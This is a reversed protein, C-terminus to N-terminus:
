RQAFVEIEWKVQGSAGKRKIERLMVNNFTSPIIKNSRMGIITSGEYISGTVRATSSRKEKQDWEAIAGLEHNLDEIEKQKSKIDGELTDAQETIMDQEEFLKSIAEESSRLKESLGKLHSEARDLGQEVGNNKLKVLKEELTRHEVTVKDQIQAIRGIEKHTTNIDEELAERKAEVAAIIKQKRSIDEDIHELKNQILQDHGLMLKTPNSMESGVDMVEVGKRVSIVSSLIKGQEIRCQGSSRIDSDIIEQKAIVDGFTEITSSKIYKARVKGHAKVRTGIIGGYVIVDGSMEVEAGTIERAILNRGKIQIGSKITGEVRINGDFEISGTTQDVDGPIELDALVIIKGDFSLGPQGDIAAFVKQGDESIEAGSGCRLKIDRHDPPPIEEGYVDIGSEGDESIIREALLTGARVPQINKNEVSEPTAGPDSADTKLNGSDFYYKIQGNNGLQPPKGEAVKLPESQEGPNSLYTSVHSDDTRGYVVGEKELLYKIAECGFRDDVPKKLQVYAAIKDESIFLDFSHRIEKIDLNETDEDAAQNQKVPPVSMSEPNIKGSECLIDFVTKISLDKKFQLKQQTLAADLDERNILGKKILVESELQDKKRVGLFDKTATLLKKQNEDILGKTLLIDELKSGNGSDKIDELVEKLQNEGVLKYKLALKAIVFAPNESNNNKVEFAMGCKKCTVPTGTHEESIRYKSRCSECEADVTQPDTM